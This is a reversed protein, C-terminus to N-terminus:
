SLGVCFIRSVAFMQSPTADTYIRKTNNPDLDAKFGQERLSHLLTLAKIEDPHYITAM